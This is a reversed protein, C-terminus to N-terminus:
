RNPARRRLDRVDPQHADRRLIRVTGFARQRATRTDDRARDQPHAGADLPRVREQPRVSRPDVPRADRGPVGLRDRTLTALGLAIILNLVLSPEYPSGPVEAPEILMMNNSGARAVGLEKYRQLLADYLERNTDVERSLIGYQVGEGQEGLYADKAAEFRQRLQAEELSARQLAADQAASTNRTEQGLAGELSAIQAKLAVIQPYQEGFTTRLSALQARAQALQSRAGSTAGLQESGAGSRVASQAAIRNTTAQALATNLAALEASVLTQSGGGGGEGESTPENLVVIENARAYDILNAESQELRERQEELQNELQSRAILTDGFRKEYNAELFERAGPTPSGPPSSRTPAASPSTSLNSLEIPEITM